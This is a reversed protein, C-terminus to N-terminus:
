MPERFSEPDLTHSPLLLTANDERGVIRFFYLMIIITDFLKAERLPTVGVYSDGCLTPM